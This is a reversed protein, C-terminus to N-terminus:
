SIFGDGDRFLAGSTDRGVICMIGVDFTNMNRWNYPNGNDGYPSGSFLLYKDSGLECLVAAGAARIRTVGTLNEVESLGMSHYGILKVTGDSFLLVSTQNCAAIDVVNNYGEVNCQFSRNDGTSVLTGDTKLGLTFHQGAAIAAIDSWGSVNLQGYTNDGYARVTGDAQLLVAHEGGLCVDVIGSVEPIRIRSNRKFNSLVTVHGNEHLAITTNENTDVSVVKTLKQNGVKLNGDSIELPEDNWIAMTRAHYTRKQEETLVPYVIALQAKIGGDEPVVKMDSIGSTDINPYHQALYLIGAYDGLEFFRNLALELSEEETMSFTSIRDLGHLFSYAESYNHNKSYYEIADNFIKRESSDRDQGNRIESSILLANTFNGRSELIDIMSHIIVDFVHDNESMKAVRFANENIDGTIMSVVSGAAYEIVTDTFRKPAGYSYIYASEFDGKELYYASAKECVRQLLSDFDSDMAIKYAENYRAEKILADTSNKVGLYRYLCTGGIVEVILVFVLAGLIVMLRTRNEKDSLPTREKPPTQKNVETPLETQVGGSQRVIAQRTRNQTTGPEKPRRVFRYEAADYRIIQGSELMVESIYASCGELSLKEPLAANFTILSTTNLDDETYKYDTFGHESDPLYVPLPSFRFRFTFSKIPMSLNRKIALRLVSEGAETLLLSISQIAAPTEKEPPLTPVPFLITKERGQQTALVVAGNKILENMQVGELM